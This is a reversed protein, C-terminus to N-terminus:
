DSEIRHFKEVNSTEVRVAGLTIFRRFVSFDRRQSSHKLLSKKSRSSNSAGGHEKVWKGLPDRAQLPNYM